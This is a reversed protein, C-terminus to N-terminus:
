LLMSFTVGSCIGCILCFASLQGAIQSHEKAVTKPANMMGLSSLYGHSLGMLFTGLIFYLDNAFYVGYRAPKFNCFLFFPIFLLRLVVPIWLHKAKPWIFYNPLINGIVASVNFNLYCCIPSFYSSDFATGTQKINSLVAPFLILTVFFTLFVNLCQEGCHKLIYMYSPRVAPAKGSTSDDQEGQTYFRYFKNNRLQRFTILCAVLIIISSFFYLFAAYQLNPSIFITFISVVSVIVGCINNGFIVAGTYVPPLKASAGYISNQYFGNSINLLIISLITLFFFKLPWTSTDLVVLVCTFIMVAINAIISFNILKWLEIRISGSTSYYALFLNLGNFLLNPIQSSISAYSMFKDRYHRLQDNESPDTMNINLKYVTYYDGATIYMNWPMLNGIGHILFIIYVFKKKDIPVNMMSSNNIFKDKEGKESDSNALEIKKLEIDTLDQDNPKVSGNELEYNQGM